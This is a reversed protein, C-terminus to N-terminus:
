ALSLECCTFRRLGSGYDWQITRIGLWFKYSIVFNWVDGLVENLKLASNERAKKIEM